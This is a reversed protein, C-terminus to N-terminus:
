CCALLNHTADELLKYHPVFVKNMIARNTNNVTNVNNCVQYPTYKGTFKFIICFHESRYPQTPPSHCEIQLKLLAGAWRKYAELNLQISIFSWKVM